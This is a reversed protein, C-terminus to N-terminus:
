RPAWADADIMPPGGAGNALQDLFGAPNLLDSRRQYPLNTRVTLGGAGRGSYLEFHLMSLTFMKGVKAVVEGAKFLQGRTINELSDTKVECYRAIFGGKHRLAIAGTGHYFDPVLEFVEGDDVALIDTGEDVLLDCGAHKRQNPRESGFARGQDRYSLKPIQPLPFIAM